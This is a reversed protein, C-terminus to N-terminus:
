ISGRHLYKINVFPFQFRARTSDSRQDVREGRWIVREPRRLRPRPHFEVSRKAGTCAATVARDPVEYFRVGTPLENPEMERSRGSEVSVVAELSDLSRRLCDQKAVRQFDISVTAGNQRPWRDIAGQMIRQDFVRESRGFCRNSLPGVDLGPRNPNPKKAPEHRVAFRTTLHRGVRRHM